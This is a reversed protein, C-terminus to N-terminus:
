ISGYPFKSEFDIISHLGVQRTIGLPVVGSALIKFSRPHSQMALVKNRSWLRLLQKGRAECMQSATHWTSDAKAEVFTYRYRSPPPSCGTEVKFIIDCNSGACQKNDTATRKVYLIPPKNPMFASFHARNAVRLNPVLSWMNDLITVFFVEGASCFQPCKGRWNLTVSIWRRRSMREQMLELTKMDIDVGKSHLNARFNELQVGSLLEFRTKQFVQISYKMEHRPIVYTLHPSIVVSEHLGGRSTRLITMQTNIGEAQSVNINFYTDSWECINSELIASTINSKTQHEGVNVKEYIMKGTGLYQSGLSHDDAQKIYERPLSCSRNELLNGFTWYEPLTEVSAHVNIIGMTPRAIEIQCISFRYVYMILRYRFQSIIYCPTLHPNKYSTMYTLLEYEDLEKSPAINDLEASRKETLILNTKYGFTALSLKETSTQIYYCPNPTLTVCQSESATWALEGSSYGSFFVMTITVEARVHVEISREHTICSLYWINFRNVEDMGGGDDDDKVGRRQHIILGGHECGRETNGDFIFRTINIIISPATTEVNWQCVKNRAFKLKPAHLSGSELIKSTESENGHHLSDCMVDAPMNEFYLYAYYQLSDNKRTIFHPNPSYMTMRYATSIFEIYEGKRIGELKMSMVGAGDYYSLANYMYFVEYSYRGTAHFKMRVRKDFAALLDTKIYNCDPSLHGYAFMHNGGPAVAMREHTTRGFFLGRGAINGCEPFYFDDM